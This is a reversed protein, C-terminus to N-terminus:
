ASARQTQADGVVFEPHVSSRFAEAGEVETKFINCHDVEQDAEVIAILLDNISEQERTINFFERDVFNKTLDLRVVLALRQSLLQLM